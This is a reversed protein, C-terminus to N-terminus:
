FGGARECERDEEAGAPCNSYRRCRLQNPLVQSMKQSLVADRCSNFQTDEDDSIDLEEDDDLYQQLLFLSVAALLFLSVATFCQTDAATPIMWPMRLLNAAPCDMFHDVGLDDAAWEFATSHM